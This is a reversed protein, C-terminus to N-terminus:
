KTALIEFGKGVEDTWASKQVQDVRAAWPGKNLKNELTSLVKEDPAKAVLEVTGDSLNRCFGDVGLPQALDELWNRFGVGQVRGHIRYYFQLNESSNKGHKGSCSESHQESRSEGRNESRNEGRKEDHKGSRSEGHKESRNEDHKEDCKESWKRM